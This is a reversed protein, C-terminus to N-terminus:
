PEHALPNGQVASVDVLQDLRGDLFVNGAVPAAQPPPEPGNHVCNRAPCSDCVQRRDHRIQRLDMLIHVLQQFTV